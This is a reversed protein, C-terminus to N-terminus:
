YNKNLLLDIENRKIIADELNKFTGYGKSYSKGNEFNRFKVQYNGSPLMCINKPLDYKRKIVRNRMNGSQDIWRLNEIRNDTRIRNIHDIQKYNFKNEIFHEAILRHINHTKRTKKGKIMLDVRLYNSKKHLYPKLFKNTKKSFVKGNKYILYDEFNKITKYEEM